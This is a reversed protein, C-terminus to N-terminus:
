CVCAQACLRDSYPLFYGVQEIEDVLAQVGPQTMLKRLLTLKNTADQQTNLATFLMTAQSTTLGGCVHHIAKAISQPGVRVLDCYSKLVDKIIRKDAASLSAACFFTKGTHHHLAEDKVISDLIHKLQPLQCSDSLRRYHQLGWGELIIQVLYYLLNPKDLSMVESILAILAGKPIKTEDNNIYPAIWNLHTAEDSGILSFMTQEALTPAILVLKASYSIGIKEIFYSELLLDQSCKELVRKQNSNSLGIFYPVRELGFFCENWAPQRSGEDAQLLRGRRKLYSEALKNQKSAGEIM